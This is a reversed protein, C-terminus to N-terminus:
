AEIKLGAKVAKEIFVLISEKTWQNTVAVKTGDALKIIQEPKLFYRDYKEGSRERAYKINQVVGYYKVIEDPFIGKLKELTLKKKTALEAVVALALPGKKLRNGMFMFESIDRKPGYSSAATKKLPKEVQAVPAKVKGAPKVPEKAFLYVADNGKGEITISGGKELSRTLSFVNLKPVKTGKVIQDTSCNPHQTIFQLILESKSTTKNM